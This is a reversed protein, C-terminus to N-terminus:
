AIGKQGLPERHRIAEAVIARLLVDFEPPPTTLGLQALKEPNGVMRRVSDGGALREDSVLSVPWPVGVALREVLQRLLVGQGCCLNFVGRAEPHFAIGVLSQAVDAVDIFDRELDLNGVALKGMAESEALRTALDMLPLHRPMGLGVVNFLRAVIVPSGAAAATLGVLTQAYKSIGYPTFPRCPLRESVPLEDEDVRGYEAASGVLLLTATLGASRVGEILRVAYGVNVDFLFRSDASGALHFIADPEAQRLLDVLHVSEPNDDLRFHPDMSGEDASRFRLRQIEIGRRKLEAVVHRGIFGGAGTVLVRPM